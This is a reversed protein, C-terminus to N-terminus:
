ALIVAAQNKLTHEAMELGPSTKALCRESFNSGLGNNIKLTAKLLFQTLKTTWRGTADGEWGAM